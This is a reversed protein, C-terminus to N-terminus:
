TDHSPFIDRIAACEANDDDFCIAYDCAHLPCLSYELRMQSLQDTDLSRICDRIIDSFPSEPSALLEDNILIDRIALSIDCNDDDLQEITALISRATHPYLKIM